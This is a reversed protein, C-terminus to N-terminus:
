QCPIAAVDVPLSEFYNVRSVGNGLQGSTGTGWCRMTGSSLLACDHFSGAGVAMAGTIAVDLPTASIRNMTGDGTEQYGWCRVGGSALLACTHADRASIAVAGTVVDGTPTAKHTVTAPDSGDGLQGYINSGWCRVGGSTTLACTHVGGAVVARVPPLGPVDTDPPSMRATMTGDGLQGGDNAGWCRVGGSALLACTHASGATVAIAGALVDDGPVNRDANTGDGLAGVGGQGWCRVGGNGAMLACTHSHGASIAQVGTLVDLSQPAARQEPPGIRTSAGGGLGDGLQGRSNLGWCRVGGNGALLACTHSGGGVVAAVGSLVDAPPPTDRMTTTGDGLAGYENGGWCRVGGGALVVCTHLYGLGLQAIQCAAIGGGTGAGASGGSGGGGGAGGTGAGGTAAGGTGAAGGGADAVLGGGGSNGGL